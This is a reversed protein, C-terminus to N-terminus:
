KYIIFGKGSLLKQKFNQLNSPLTPSTDTKLMETTSKIKYKPNYSRKNLTNTM